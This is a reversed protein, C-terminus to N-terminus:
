ERPFIAALTSTELPVSDAASYPDAAGAGVECQGMCTQASSSSSPQDCLDLWSGDPGTIRPWPSGCLSLPRLYCPLTPDVTSRELPDRPM